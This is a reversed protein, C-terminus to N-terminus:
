LPRKRPMGPRRPYRPPTPSVKDIIVLSRKDGFEALDIGKVEQLEGGMLGIAREAQAVEQQIDGKKQAIFSGGQKCFPLALEVGTALTAVGRALAAQFVERYQPKHAAEEAREAVVETGELGLLDIIHDIFGAKKAASELLVLEISPFAIKLPLGPIGAGSGIDILHTGPPPAANPWALAVTLSDLFHKIQVDEYDTIRTLNIHRNWRTLEEYYTQFKDMQTPNLSLGLKSAGIALKEM